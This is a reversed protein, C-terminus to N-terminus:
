LEEELEDFKAYDTKAGTIDGIKTKLDGRYQYLDSYYPNLQIAQNYDAIALHWNQMKEYMDARMVYGYFDDPKLRIVITYDAIASEWDEMQEFLLAREEFVESDSTNLAIASEFDSLALKYERIAIYLKARYLHASAISSDTQIVYTLDELATAYRLLRMNVAALSVLIELNESLIYAQQYDKCAEVYNYHQVQLLARNILLQANDPSKSIQSNLEVLEQAEQMQGSNELWEIYNHYNHDLRKAIQYDYFASEDDSLHNYIISRCAYFFPQEPHQSIAQTYIEIAQQYAGKEVFNFATDVLDIISHNVEIGAQVQQFPLLQTVPM